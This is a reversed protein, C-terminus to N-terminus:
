FPLLRIAVAKKFHAIADAMRKKNMYCIGLDNHVIHDEPNLKEAELLERLAATYNGQRMYAEGVDRKAEAIRKNRNPDQGTCSTILLAAILLLSGRLLLPMKNKM